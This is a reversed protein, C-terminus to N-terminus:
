KKNFSYSIGWLYRLNVSDEFNIEPALEFVCSFRKFSQLPYFELVVPISFYEDASYPNLGLGVGVHFQHFDGPKFNYFGTIEFDVDEISRNLYTKLDASFKENLPVSVGVAYISYGTIKVQSMGSSALMLFLLNLFIKRTKM